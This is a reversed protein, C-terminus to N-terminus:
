ASRTPAAATRTKNTTTTTHTKGKNNNNSNNNSSGTNTEQRLDDIIKQLEHVSYYLESYQDRSCTEYCNVEPPQECFRVKSDRRTMNCCSPSSSLAQVVVGTPLSRRKRTANSAPANKTTSAVVTFSAAYVINWDDEDEEDSLGCNDDDEHSSFSAQDDHWGDALGSQDGYEEPHLDVDWAACFPDNGHLPDEMTVFYDSLPTDQHHHHHRHHNHAATTTPM